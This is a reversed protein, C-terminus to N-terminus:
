EDLQGFMSIPDRDDFSESYDDKHMTFYLLVLAHWAVAAFHYEAGNLDEIVLGELEQGPGNLDELVQSDIEEGGWAAWAHRQMAAFNSSWPLGKSWNSGAPGTGDNQIDDYKVSGIGFREAVAWIVEPPIKSFDALKTGKKGGGEHAIMKEKSKPVALGEANLFTQIKNPIRLQLQSRVSAALDPSTLM